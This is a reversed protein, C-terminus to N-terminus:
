FLSKGSGNGALAQHSSAHGHDVMFSTVAM